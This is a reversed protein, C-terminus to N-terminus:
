YKSLFTSVNKERTPKQAICLSMDELVQAVVRPGGPSKSARDKFFEEADKKHEADCFHSAVHILSAGARWPLPAILTEYHTKVFDWTLQRHGHFSAVGYVLTISERRDFEDSLALDLNAQALKPDRARSMAELLATREQRDTTKKAEAHLKDWHAKDGYRMGSALVVNMM